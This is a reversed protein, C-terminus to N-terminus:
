PSLPIRYLGYPAHAAIAERSPPRAWPDIYAPIGSDTVYAASSTVTVGDSWIIDPSFGFASLRGEPDLRALAGHEIDTLLISGDPAMEIGDSLPKPGIREISRALDEPALDADLLAQLPVRYATDHSMAAFIVHDADLAIGDVGVSFTVLDYGLRLPTGRFTTIFWDQPSVAPLGELRKRVEFTELDVVLLSPPTFRFLGTDAMIMTRADPTVRMDQAFRAVGAAFRHDVIREGSRLDYALLRTQERDLAAPCTLWLRGLADVTMGFVTDLDAQSSADPYPRAEGDVWEFLFADTFRKAQAFPHINFFIRGASSTTVNGLPYDLKVIPVLPRGEEPVYPPPYAVGAGHFLKVLAIVTAFAGFLVILTTTLIRRM